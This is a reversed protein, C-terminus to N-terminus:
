DLKYCTMAPEADKIWDGTLPGRGTKESKFNRPDQEPQYDKGDFKLNGIDMRIIECSKYKDDPV